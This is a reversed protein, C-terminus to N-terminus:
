LPDGRHHLSHAAVVVSIQQAGQDIQRGVDGALVVGARLCRIVDRHADNRIM